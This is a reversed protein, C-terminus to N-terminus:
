DSGHPIGSDDLKSRDVSDEAQENDIGDSRPVLVVLNHVAREVETTTAHGTTYILHVGCAMGDIDIKTKTIKGLRWERIANNDKVLVIDGVQVNRRSYMGMQETNSDIKTGQPFDKYDKGAAMTKLARLPTANNDKVLGVM